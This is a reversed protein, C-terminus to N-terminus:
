AKEPWSIYVVFAAGPWNSNTWGSGLAGAFCYAVGETLEAETIPVPVGPTDEPRRKPRIPDPLAPAVYAWGNALLHEPTHYQNDHYFWTKQVGDNTSFRYRVGESLRAEKIPTWRDWPLGNADTNPAPPQHCYCAKLDGGMGIGRDCMGTWAHLYDCGGNKPLTEWLDSAFPMGYVNKTAGCPAKVPTMKEM